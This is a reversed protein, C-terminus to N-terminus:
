KIQKTQCLTGAFAPARKKYTISFYNEVRSADPRTLRIAQRQEEGPLNRLSGVKQSNISLGKQPCNLM